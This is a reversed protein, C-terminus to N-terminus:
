RFAPVDVSVVESCAGDIPVRRRCAVVAHDELHVRLATERDPAVEFTRSIPAFSSGEGSGPVYNYSASLRVASGRGDLRVVSELRCHGDFDSRYRCPADSAGCAIISAVSGLLLVGCRLTM